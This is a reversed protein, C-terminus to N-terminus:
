AEEFKPIECWAIMEDSNETFWHKQRYDYYCQELNQNFVFISVDFEKQLRSPLDDPNKRLDHWVVGNEKAGIIYAKELDQRYGLNCDPVYCKDVESDVWKEARKELEEDTM